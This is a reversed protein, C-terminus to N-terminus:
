LESQIRQQWELWSESSQYGHYIKFYHYVPFQDEERVSMCIIAYLITLKEQDQYPLRNQLLERGVRDALECTSQYADSQNVYSLCNHILQIWRSRVNEYEFPIFWSSEMNYKTEFIVKFM